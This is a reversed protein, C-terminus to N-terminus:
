KASLPRYIWPQTIGLPWTWNHSSSWLSSLVDFFQHRQVITSSFVSLGKSMFSILGTLRLPLWGQISVSLFSGSIPVGTNQWRIRIASENSFNRVSPSISPLLLLPHWFILHSSPMVSPMSMFKLLNQSVTYSLSAQQAAIWPTVSDYVLPRSFLLVVIQVLSIWHTWLYLKIDGRFITWLWFWLIDHKFWDNCLCQRSGKHSLHYPIQRCHPLGLNSGQTHFIM